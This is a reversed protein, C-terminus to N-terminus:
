NRVIGLLLDLILYGFAVVTGLGAVFLGASIWKYLSLSIDHKTLYAPVESGAMAFGILVVVVVGFFSIIAKKASAFDTIINLLAFGLTLVLVVIILIYAIPLGVNTFFDLITQM